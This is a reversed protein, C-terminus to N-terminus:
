LRIGPVKSRDFMYVTDLFRFTGDQLSMVLSHTRAGGAFYTIGKLLDGSTVGTASFFIHSGSALDHTKYVKDLDIGMQLAREAEEPNRPKIRAQIEGGLCRLAAAALVGEPAGGTGMVLHDGTGSVAVSIAAGLDGDPIMKIRAGAERIKQVLGNHRERDLVVVTLDEIRRNLSDAVIRLNARVPFNLDVKGAAPPGVVLKEMYTDPAHLLGGTEAVAIVATAGPQGRAVLNTGELPDVAIDVAFAGSTGIREGIFLMPAEDREGEGIVVTGDFDLQDLTTRMAEVAAQDARHNDGHGLWRGAAIAASETIRACELAFDVKASTM